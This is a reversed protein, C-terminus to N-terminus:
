KKQAREPVEGAVRVVCAKRPSVAPFDSLSFPDPMEEDGLYLRSSSMDIEFEDEVFAKLLEVTQGLKFTKEGESGDPLEFVVLVPADLRRIIDDEATAEANREAKALSELDIGIRPKPEAGPSILKPSITALLDDRSDVRKADNSPM